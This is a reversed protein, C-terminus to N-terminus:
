SVSKNSSLKFHGKKVGIELMMESLNFGEGTTSTGNDTIFVRLAECKQKTLFTRFQVLAGASPTFSATQNYSPEYDYAMSVSLTCPSKYEGLLLFERTRQYGQLGNLKIWPMGISMTIPSGNDLYTSGQQRVVGNAQVYTHQNQYLTSGQASLNTFTGWQGMLYDFVLSTGNDLTFIVQNYEALHLASTINFSNFAEVPAGIYQVNLGRDLLYIGKESKFMLGNPMAVVSKPYSCGVPSSIEQPTSFTQGGGADNPGDGYMYFIKNKKFFICKDDLTGGALVDGGAIDVNTFFLASFKIPEGAVRTKSYWIANGDDLGGLMVRNKYLWQFQSNPAPDNPLIGGSTYLIQNNVITADDTVGAAGLDTYSFYGNNFSRTTKNTLSIGTNPLRYATVGNVTTRYLAPYYSTNKTTNLFRGVSIEVSGSAGVTLTQPLSPVSQHVQGKNDVWEWVWYYQYQGAPLSGGGGVVPAKTVEPFWNFNQESAYVDFVTPVGGSILFNLDPVTTISATLSDQLNAEMLYVSNIETGTKVALSSRVQQASFLKAGNAILEPKPLFGIQGRVRANGILFRAASGLTNVDSVGDLTVEQLFYTSQTGDSGTQTISWFGTVVWFKGNAQNIKSCLEGVNSFYLDTFQIGTADVVFKSICSYPSANTSTNQSTSLILVQGAGVGKATVNYFSTNTFSNNFPDSTYLDTATLVPTLTSTYVLYTVNTPSAYVLYVNGLSDEALSIGRSFGPTTTSASYLTTLNSDLIYVSLTTAGTYVTLAINGNSLMLADLQETLGSSSSKTITATAVVPTTATPDIKSITVTAGGTAARWKFQYAYTSDSILKVATTYAISAEFIASQYTVNKTETDKITFQVGRIDTNIGFYSYIERNGVIALDCNPANVLSYNDIAPKATLAIPYFSGSLAFNNSSDLRSYVKDEALVILQNTNINACLNTADSFTGGTEINNGLSDYGFRKRLKGPNEFVANELTLLKGLQVSKQDTKTDIGSSFIIPLQMDQLPM